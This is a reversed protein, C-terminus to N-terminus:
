YNRFKLGYKVTEAKEDPIGGILFSAGKETEFHAEMAALKIPQRKAVSKAAVDGSIPALGGSFGLIVAIRFAKKHFERNKGKLLFLLRSTRLLLVQLVFHRLLCICHNHFGAENFMAKIPDINLYKGNVYDFGSPSNMWANAAVV